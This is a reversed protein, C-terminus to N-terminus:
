ECLRNYVVFCNTLIGWFQETFHM